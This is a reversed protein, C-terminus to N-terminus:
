ACITAYGMTWEKHIRTAFHDHVHRECSDIFRLGCLGDGDCDNDGFIGATAIGDQVTSGFLDGTNLGGNNACANQWTLVSNADLVGGVTDSIYWAACNAASNADLPTAASGLAKTPCVAFVLDSTYTACIGPDTRSGALYANIAGGAGVGSVSAASEGIGWNYELFGNVSEQNILILWDEFTVADASALVYEVIGGQLGPNTNMMWNIAPRLLRNFGNELVAYRRFALLDVTIPINPASKLGGFNPDDTSDAGWRTTLLGPSNYGGNDRYVIPILVDQVLNNRCSAWDPGNQFGSTPGFCCPCTLSGYEGFGAFFTM